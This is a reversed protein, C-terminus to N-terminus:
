LAHKRRPETIRNGLIKANGTQGPDQQQVRISSNNGIIQNVALNPLRKPPCETGPRFELTATM